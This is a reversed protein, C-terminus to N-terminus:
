ESFKVITCIGDKRDKLAAKFVGPEQKKLRAKRRHDAAKKSILDSVWGTLIYLILMGGLVVVFMWGIFGIVLAVTPEPPLAGATVLTFAMFGMCVVLGIAVLVVALVSTCFVGLSFMTALLARIYTCTTYTKTENRLQYKLNDSGFKAMFRYHWAKRSINM